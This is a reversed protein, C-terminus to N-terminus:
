RSTTDVHFWFKAHWEANDIATQMEYDNRPYKVRLTNLYYLADPYNHFRATWQPDHLDNLDSRKGSWTAIKDIIYHLLDENLEESKSNNIMYKPM